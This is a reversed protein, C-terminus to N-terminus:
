FEKLITIKNFQCNNVIPEFISNELLKKFYGLTAQIIWWHQSWLHWFFHNRSFYDNNEFSFDYQLKFIGILKWAKLQYWQEIVYLLLTNLVIFQGSKQRM